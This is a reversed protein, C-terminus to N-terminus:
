IQIPTKSSNQFLDHIFSRNQSMDIIDGAHNVCPKSVYEKRFSCSSNPHRRQVKENNTYDFSMLMPTQLSEYRKDCLNSIRVTAQLKLDDIKLYVEIVRKRPELTSTRALYRCWFM